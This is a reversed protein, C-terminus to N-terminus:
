RREVRRGGFVHMTRTGASVEMTQRTHKAIVIEDGGRMEIRRSETVLVCRGDIVLVYEDFPHAHEKCTGDEHCTWFAAQSGDAGEFVYGEIAETYQSTTPIRNKARKMFPPFEALTGIGRTLPRTDQVSWLEVLKGDRLRAFDAGSWAVRRGTPARGAFVGTHKGAITFRFAVSDGECVCQDIACTLETFGAHLARIARAVGEPGGSYAPFTHDVFDAAVIEDLLTVDGSAYAQAYREITRRM